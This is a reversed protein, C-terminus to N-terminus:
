GPDQAPQLGPPPGSSAPRQPSPLRSTPTQGYTCGHSFEEFSSFPPIPPWAGLCHAPSDAPLLDSNCVPVVRARSPTRPDPDGTIPGFVSGSESDSVPFVGPLRVVMRWGSDLCVGGLSLIARGRNRRSPTRACRSYNPRISRSMWGRPRPDSAAGTRLCGSRWRRPRGRRAALPGRRELPQLRAWMRM